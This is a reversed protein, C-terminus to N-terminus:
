WNQGAKGQGQFGWYLTQGLNEKRGAEAEQGVIISRGYGQTAHCAEKGQSIYTIVEEKLPM